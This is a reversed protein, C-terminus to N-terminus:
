RSAGASPRAATQARELKLMLFQEKGEEVSGSNFETPFQAADPRTLCLFLSTGSFKYIGKQMGAKPDAM